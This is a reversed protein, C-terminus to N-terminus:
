MYPKANIIRDATLGAKVAIDIGKDFNGVDEPKHADSSIAFKVDQQMAIRVYEQNLLGHHSNIELATGLNACERALKATDILIGCGPHTIIDIKYKNIAKIFMRTNDDILDQIQSKARKFLLNKLFIQYWDKISSTRVMKHYGLLVMDLESILDQSIDIDGETNIINAEVALLVEIDDFEQNIKYIESKMKLINKNSVGYGIHGPGHDSIAIRNLGKKRAVLVNDRITGKGHSYRTHTHYDAFIKM